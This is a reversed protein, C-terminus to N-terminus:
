ENSTAFEGTVQSENCCKQISAFIVQLEKCFQLIRQDSTARKMLVENNCCESLHTQVM